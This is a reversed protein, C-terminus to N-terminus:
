DGPGQPTSPAQPPCLSTHGRGSSTMQGSWVHKLPPSSRPKQAKDSESGSVADTQLPLLSARRHPPPARPLPLLDVPTHNSAAQDGPEEGLSPPSM